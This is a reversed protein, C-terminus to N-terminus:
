DEDLGEDALLSEGQDLSKDPERLKSIEAAAKENIAQVEVALQERILEVCLQVIGIGKERALTLLQVMEEASIEGDGPLEPRMLKATARLAIEPIPSPNKSKLWQNVTGLRVGIQDAYWAYTRSTTQLWDKISEATPLTKDV